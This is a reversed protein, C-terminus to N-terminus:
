AGESSGAKLIGARGYTPRMQCAELEKTKMHEKDALSILAYLQGTMPGRFTNPQEEPLPSEPSSPESCLDIVSPCHSAVGSNVALAQLSM